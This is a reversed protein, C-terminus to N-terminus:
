RALHRLRLANAIVSVSSLSMALAAVLPSLLWGTLPYLVGAALPIGLANYGFAFMLNQRINGVTAESLRRARLIGRLDGKVLTVHASEMAIDTGTGMAIGVDARALAPADNIGDGAMAVRHGAQQLKAVAAAKDTPRVDAVVEDLPLSTAVAQATTQNDGTLMILRLGHAKLDSLAEPTSDKLVDGVALVGILQSDMALFVVTHGTHRLRETAERASQVSVRHEQMLQENGLAIPRGQWTGIVGRGTLSEFDAIEAPRINRERAGDVVARAMPHESARELGAAGALVIDQSSNGLAIVQTLTPRGRTLTGTKDLVLTDVSRLTEIAEADRFLVGWQAGRGSAVMVSIPTALGLACPCAIILVAVANALAYSLRPEPGIALWAIFTVIALAIVAPVFWSAVRDALKQLPARSRQAQSVLEVIQSLLSHAGLREAEVVLAGNQNITAGVVRDGVGKEVPLPEGTIMSEDVSSRGDVIRGDVPIKEGPRIRVRDAIALSEMPVDQEEGSPAIRRATKPSLGLLQRIAASTHGRAQLELWEGLLALAVIMAAVEFYAGVMQQADRMTAPFSGPLLTAIVSYAFAVVVGLGILTYMNPARHVVGFWGRRYYPAAAWLVVPASLALELFRMLTSTGHSLRAGLTHPVMAVGMTAIALCFAIWFRRRVGAIESDDMTETPMLPELAMGCKPCHGPGIQRVEPHMPCTYVTGAPVNTPPTSAAGAHAGRAHPAAPGHVHPADGHGGHDGHGHAHDKM